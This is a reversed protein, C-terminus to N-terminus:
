NFGRLGQFKRLQDVGSTESQIPSDDNIDYVNQLNEPEEGAMLRLTDNLRNMKIKITQVSDGTQINFIEDAEKREDASIVAGTRSRLIIDIANKLDSRVSKIDTGAIRGGFEKKALALQLEEPNKLMKDIGAQANQFSTLGSKINGLEKASLTKKGKESIPNLVGFEGTKGFELISDPTFKGSKTLEFQEERKKLLKKEQSAEKMQSINAFAQTGSQITQADGGDPKYGGVQSGLADGGIKAGIAAGQPGGGLIAGGIAGGISGITEFAGRRQKSKGIVEAVQAKGKEREVQGLQIAERERQALIDSLGLSSVLSSGHLENLSPM